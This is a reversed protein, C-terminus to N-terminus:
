NLFYFLSFYFCLKSKFFFPAKRPKSRDAGSCSMQLTSSTGRVRCDDIDANSIQLSSGSVEIHFRRACTISRVRLVTAHRTIKRPERGLDFHHRVRSILMERPNEKKKESKWKGLSLLSPVRRRNFLQARIFMKHWKMELKLALVISTAKITRCFFVQPVSNWCHWLCCGPGQSSVVCFQSDPLYM